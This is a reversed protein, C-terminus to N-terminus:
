IQSVRLFSLIDEKKEKESIIRKEKEKKQDLTYSLGM